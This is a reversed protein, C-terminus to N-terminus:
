CGGGQSLTANLFSRIPGVPRPSSFVGGRVGFAIHGSQRLHSSTLSSPFLALCPLSCCRWPMLISGPPSGSLDCAMRPATSCGTSFQGLRSPSLPSVHSGRLRGIRRTVYSSRRCRSSGRRDEQVPASGKGTRSTEPPPASNTSAHLEQLKTRQGTM